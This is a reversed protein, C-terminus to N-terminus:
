IFRCVDTMAVKVKGITYSPRQAFCYDDPCHYFVMFGAFILVGILFLMFCGYNRLSSFTGSNRRRLKRAVNGKSTVLLPEMDLVEMVRMKKTLENKNLGKM